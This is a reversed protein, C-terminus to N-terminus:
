VKDLWIVIVIEKVMLLLKLLSENWGGLIVLIWWELKIFKYEVYEKLFLESLDSVFMVVKYVFM